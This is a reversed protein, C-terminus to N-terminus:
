RRRLFIESELGNENEVSAMTSILQDFITKSHNSNITLNFEWIKLSKFETFIKVDGSEDHNM